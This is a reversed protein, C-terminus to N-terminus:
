SNSCCADSRTFILAPISARAVGSSPLWIRRRAWCGAPARSRIRRPRSERAIGFDCIKLRGGALLFLNAPKLDRHVVDEAHTAALADAAQAALGVAETVSLGHPSRALVKALDEGHLLEMVIFLRGEHRGIDHVVTIGPHQFRAGISAERRFREVVLDDSAGLEQLVKLAVARDLQLDHARWVEGMGGRGLRAVLRYRGAISEGSEM